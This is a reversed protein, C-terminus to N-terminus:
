IKELEADTKLWDNMGAWGKDKYVQNPTAPINGPKKGSRCYQEWDKRNNLKLKRVYERADEFPMSVKQFVAVAGTGLWDGMGTWGYNKYVLNPCRPIDDPKKGSICYNWWEFSNKLKLKHVFKRAKEFQRYERNYTARKDGRKGLWDGIGIWGKDKYVRMPTAPIYVPLKKSKCYIQWEAQSNINLKHVFARAEEFSLYERIGLWDKMGAWGKDQYLKYPTAPINKPKSGSICYEHWENYRSLNLTHVFERAEEFTLYERTRIAIKITGLWDGIGTWGKDKYKIYPNAPINDPKSGLKCYKQWESVGILNLKHVFERAEEFTLYERNRTSIAGTGLWDGFGTWGKDKYKKYPNAPINDPKNELKCYKRWESVGTLNLKHVFARAEEFALFEKNRNSINGTGLWDGFGTWGKDKYTRYPKKPINDHKYGSKCYKEWERASTLNLKHVFEKAEEFALYKKHRNAIM